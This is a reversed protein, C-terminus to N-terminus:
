KVLAEMNQKSMIFSVVPRVVDKYDNFIHMYNSYYQELKGPANFRGHLDYSVMMTAKINHGKERLADLCIHLATRDSYLLNSAIVLTEPVVHTEIHEVLGANDFVDYFYKVSDAIKHMIAEDKIAFLEGGLIKFTFFDYKSGNVLKRINENNKDVAECSPMGFMYNFTKSKEFCFTCNNNCWDWYRICLSLRRKM